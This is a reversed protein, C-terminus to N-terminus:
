RDPVAELWILTAMRGCQGDRRHSFFRLRDGHTCLDGGHISEVGAALLRRRALGALDAFSRDGHGPLFCAEAGPDRDLFSERVEPGVEFSAQGIAPGLWAILDGPATDLRDIVAELVGAALGRWGAHAAAALTGQRSCLLVPLCDATLVACVADPRRTFAADAEVPSDWRAAEVVTVGHVQRLWAPDAPLAAGAALRRRNESVADPEDGVRAALNLTAYGGRSVGGARTTSVARVNEPAPWDPVILPLSM